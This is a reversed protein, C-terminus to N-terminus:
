KLVPILYVSPGSREYYSEAKHFTWASQLSLFGKGRLKKLYLADMECILKELSRWVRFNKVQKEQFLYEKRHGQPYSKFLIFTVKIQKSNLKKLMHSRLIVFCPLKGEQTASCWLISTPLLAMHNKFVNDLTSNGNNQM